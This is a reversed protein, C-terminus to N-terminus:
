PVSLPIFISDSSGHVLLSKRVNLFGGAPVYKKSNERLFFFRYIGFYRSHNLLVKIPWYFQQYYIESTGESIWNTLHKEIVGASWIGIGSCTGLWEQAKKIARKSLWIRVKEARAGNGKFVVGEWGENNSQYNVIQSVSENTKRKWFLGEGYTKTERFQVPWISRSILDSSLLPVRPALLVDEPLAADESFEEPWVTTWLYDDGGKTRSTKDVVLIKKGKALNQLLIRFGPVLMSALGIGMPSDEIEYILPSTPSTSSSVTFDVRVIMSPCNYLRVAFTNESLFPFKKEWVKLIKIIEQIIKPDPFKLTKKTINTIWPYKANQSRIQIKEIEVNSEIIEEM